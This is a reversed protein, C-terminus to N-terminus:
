DATQLPFIRRSAEPYLYTNFSASLPPVCIGSQSKRVERRRANVPCSIADTKSL